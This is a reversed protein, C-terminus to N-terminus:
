ASCIENATTSKVCKLLFRESFMSRAVNQVSHFDAKLEFWSKPWPRYQESRRKFNLSGSDINFIKGTSTSPRDFKRKNSFKKVSMRKVQAIVRISKPLKDGFLWPGTTYFLSKLFNVIILPFKLWDSGRIKYKIM